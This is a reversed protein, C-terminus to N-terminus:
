GTASENATMRETLRARLRAGEDQAEIQKLIEKSPADPPAPPAIPRGLTALLAKIDSESVLDEDKPIQKWSPIPPPALEHPPAIRPSAPLSRSYSQWDNFWTSGNQVYEMTRGSSKIEALYTDLASNISQVDTESHVTATFHRLAAKKGRPKPYREWIKQFAQVIYTNDIEKKKVEKNKVELLATATGYSNGLQETRTGYVTGKSESESYGVIQITHRLSNRKLAIAGAITLRHLGYAIQKVTLGTRKSLGRLSDFLEGRKVLPTDKFSARDVLYLYLHSDNPNRLDLVNESHTRQICYFGEM